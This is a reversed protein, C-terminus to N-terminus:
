RRRSYNTRSTHPTQDLTERNCSCCNKTVIIRFSLSLSASVLTRIRKQFDQLALLILTHAPPMTIGCHHMLTVSLNIQFLLPVPLYPPPALLCVFSHTDNFLSLRGLSRTDAAFAHMRAYLYQVKIFKAEGRNLVMSRMLNMKICYLM